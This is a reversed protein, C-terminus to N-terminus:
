MGDLLRFQGFIPCSHFHDYRVDIYQFYKSALLDILFYISTTSHVQLLLIRVCVCVCKIILCLLM